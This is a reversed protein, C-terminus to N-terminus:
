ISISVTTGEGITSDFALEGHHFAVAHKVISLGLGTGGTERSHSKDVRYFRECIRPIHEQPIGIGTDSVKISTKGDVSDLVIDVTGGEKNYRIANDCLNYLMEYLYSRNGNVTCGPGTVSLTVSRKAAAPSLVKVVESAVDCLSVEEVVMDSNEDMESLRIIDGILTVLRTADTKIHSVFRSTDEPKVLGSELLEASGIIAQLPTKLEHSVNATFERRRQEAFAKETIDMCLIVLGLTRGESRTLSAIFQYERGWREETFESHGSNKAERIANQMAPSRDLALFDRGIASKDVNFLKQAMANISLVKDHTDLILLGESMSGTIQDFEDTKQRLQLMQDTIQKHQQGLRRLIPSLEEYADNDGPNDLDLDRLPKVISKAMRESLLISIVISAIIILAVAPTIGVLLAGITMQTTAIRLINGDSLRVAEYFTRETLTASYRASSGYGTSMAARIESRQSHDEMDRANAQSDYLVEGQASILTYRYTPSSFSDFYGQGYREVNSAALTLEERLQAIQGKEFYDYFFTSAIILSSLMVVMAVAIISYFIKKSM